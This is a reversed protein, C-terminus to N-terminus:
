VGQKDKDRRDEAEDSPKGDTLKDGIIGGGIGGITGIAVAALPGVVFTAAIGAIVGLASGVAAGGDAKFSPSSKVKQVNNLARSYCVPSIPYVRM